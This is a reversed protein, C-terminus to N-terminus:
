ANPTTVLACSKMCMKRKYTSRSSSWARLEPGCCACTAARHFLAVLSALAEQGRNGVLQWRLPDDFRMEKLGDPLAAEFRAYSDDCDVFLWVDAAFGRGLVWDAGFARGLVGNDARGLVNRLAARGGLVNRLAARRGLVM